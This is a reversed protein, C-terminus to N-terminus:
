KPSLMKQMEFHPLEIEKFEGGVIKYGLKKYFPVATKRAHCFMTTANKEIAFQEAFAVLTKGYGKGQESKQTAVQRMKVRENKYFTLTLCAFIQENEILAFHIDHKDKELEAATFQLELPKRLVDYRLALALSYYPSSTDFHIIKM